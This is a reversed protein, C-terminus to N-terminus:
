VLAGNNAGNKLAEIGRQIGSLAASCPVNQKNLFLLIASVPKQQNAARELNVIVKSKLWKRVSM